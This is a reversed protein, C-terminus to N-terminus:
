FKRLIFQSLPLTVASKARRSRLPCARYLHREPPTADEMPTRERRYGLCSQSDAPSAPHPSSFGGEWRLRFSITEMKRILISSM